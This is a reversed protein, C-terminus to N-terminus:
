STSNKANSKIADFISGFLTLSGFGVMAILLILQM